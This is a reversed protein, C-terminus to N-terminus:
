SIYKLIYKSTKTIVGDYGDEFKYRLFETDMKWM